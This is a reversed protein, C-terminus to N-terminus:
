WCIQIAHTLHLEISAFLIKYMITRSKWGNITTSFVNCISKFCADLLISQITSSYVSITVWFVDSSTVWCSCAYVGTRTYRYARCQITFAWYAFYKRCWWMSAHPPTNSSQIWACLYPKVQSFKEIILASKEFDCNGNVIM